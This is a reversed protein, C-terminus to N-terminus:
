RLPGEWESPFQPKGRLAVRRLAERRTLAGGSRHQPDRWSEEGVRSLPHFGALFLAMEECFPELPLPEVIEGFRRDLDGIM